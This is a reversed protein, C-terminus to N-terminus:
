AEEAVAPVEREHWCNVTLITRYFVKESGDEAPEADDVESEVFVADIELGDWVMSQGDMSQRIVHAVRQALPAELAWCEVQALTDATASAGEMHYISGVDLRHITVYPFPTPKGHQTSPAVGPFIRNGILAQLPAYLSLYAYLAKQLSPLEAM